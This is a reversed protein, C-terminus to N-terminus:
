ASGASFKEVLEPWCVLATYPNKDMTALRTPESDGVCMATANSTEREVSCRVASYGSYLDVRDAVGSSNAPWIPRM